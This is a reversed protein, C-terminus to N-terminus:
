KRREEKGSIVTVLNSSNAYPTNLERKHNLVDITTNFIDIAQDFVQCLTAISLMGDYDKVATQALNIQKNVANPAKQLDFIEEQNMCSNNVTGKNLFEDIMGCVQKIKDGCGQINRITSKLEKEYDEHVSVFLSKYCAIDNIGIFLKTMQEITSVLFDFAKKLSQEDIIKFNFEPVRDELSEKLIKEFIDSM